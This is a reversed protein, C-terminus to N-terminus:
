SIERGEKRKREKMQWNPKGKKEAKGRKFDSDKEAVRERERKRKIERKLDRM